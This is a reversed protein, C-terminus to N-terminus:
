ASFFGNFTWLFKNEITRLVCVPLVLCHCPPFAKSGFLLFSCAELHGSDPACLPGFAHGCQFTRNHLPAASICDAAGVASGSAPHAHEGLPIPRADVPEGNCTALLDCSRDRRWYACRSQGGSRKHRFCCAPQLPALGSFSDCVVSPWWTDVDGRSCNVGEWSHQACRCWFGGPPPLVDASDVMASHLSVGGADLRLLSSTMAPSSLRVCSHNHDPHAPRRPPPPFGLCNCPPAAHLLTGVFGTGCEAHGVTANRTPPASPVYPLCLWVWCGRSFVM